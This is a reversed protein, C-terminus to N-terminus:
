FNKKRLSNIKLIFLQVVGKVLGCPNYSGKQKAFIITLNKKENIKKEFAKWITHVPKQYNDVLKELCSDYKEASGGVKVYPYLLNQTAVNNNNNTNVYSPGDLM